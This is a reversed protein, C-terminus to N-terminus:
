ILHAQMNSTNVKDRLLPLIPNISPSTQLGRKQSAHHGDWGTPIFQLNISSNQHSIKQMFLSGSSRKLLQQTMLHFNEKHCM